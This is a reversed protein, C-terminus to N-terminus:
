EKFALHTRLLIGLYEEFNFPYNIEIEKQFSYDYSLIDSVKDYKINTYTIVQDVLPGTTVYFEVKDLINNKIDLLKTKRYLNEMKEM